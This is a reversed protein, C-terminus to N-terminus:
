SRRVVRTNAAADWPGSGKDVLIFFGLVWCCCFLVLVKLLNRGIARMAGVPTGDLEVVQLGAALKGPSASLHSAEMGAFVGLMVLVPLWMALPVLESAAPAVKLMLDTLPIGFPFSVVLLVTDILAGSARPVAPALDLSPAGNLDVLETDPPLYPDSM